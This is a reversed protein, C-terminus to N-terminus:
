SKEGSPGSVIRRVGPPPPAGTTEEDRDSEAPATASVALRRPVAKGTVEETHPVPEAVVRKTRGPQEKSREDGRGGMGSTPMGMPMMAPGAVPAPPPASSAPLRPSTSDGATSLGVPMTPASFGGAAPITQGGGGSLGDGIDDPTEGDRDPDSAPEGRDPSSDSKPPKLGSLAQTGARMLSQPARETAGILGGLAGGASELLTPMLQPLVGAAQGAAEPSPPAAGTPVGPQGTDTAIDGSGGQNADSAGTGPERLEGTTTVDTAAHYGSFGHVAQENLATLDATAQALPGAYAGHSEINALAITKVREQAGRLQQPHPIDQRAQGHQAAHESAQQALVHARSGCEDLRDAFQRLHGTVAPASVPGDLQDPLHNIASRIVAAAHHAADSVQSWSGIFAEGASPNGSHVAVAIAEPSAGLPPPLPARVDPPVPPAPPAWGRYSPGHEVAVLNAIGSANLEDTIAFGMAAGSLQEASAVLAASLAGLAGALQAGAGSLRGAAGGSVQDAALPPHVADGGTVANVASAVRHAAAVLGAADVKM